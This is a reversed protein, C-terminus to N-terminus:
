IKQCVGSGFAILPDATYTLQEALKLSREKAVRPSYQVNRTCFERPSYQVNRTCFEGRTEMMPWGHMMKKEYAGAGATAAYCM